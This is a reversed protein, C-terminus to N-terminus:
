QNDRYDLLRKSIDQPAKFSSNFSAANRHAIIGLDGIRRRTVGMSTYAGGDSIAFARLLNLIADGNKMSQLEKFEEQTQSNRSFDKAVFFRYAFDLSKTVFLEIHSFLEGSVGIDGLFERIMEIDYKVGQKHNKGIDHVLIALRMFGLIGIPIRDGFNREFNNLVTEVHEELTYGEWVGVESEFVQKWKPSINKTMEIIEFADIYPSNIVNKLNHTQSNIPKWNKDINEGFKKATEHFVNRAMNKQKENM